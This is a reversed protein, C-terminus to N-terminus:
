SRSGLLSALIKFGYQFCGLLLGESYCVQRNTVGGWLVLKAPVGSAARNARRKACILRITLRLGSNSDRYGTLPNKHRSLTTERPKRLKPTQM